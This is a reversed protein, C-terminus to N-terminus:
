EELEYPPYPVGGLEDTISNQLICLPTTSGIKHHDLATCADDLGWYCLGLIQKLRKNEAELGSVYRESLSLGIYKPNSM